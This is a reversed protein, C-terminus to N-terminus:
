RGALWWSRSLPSHLFGPFRFRRLIEVLFQAGFVTKVVPLGLWVPENAASHFPRNHDHEIGINRLHESGWVRDVGDQPCKDLCHRQGHFGLLHLCVRFLFSLHESRHRVHRENPMPIILAIVLLKWSNRTWRAEHRCKALVEPLRSGVDEHLVVRITTAYIELHSGQHEPRELHRSRKLLLTLKGRPEGRGLWSKGERRGRGSCARRKKASLRAFREDTPTGCCPVIMSVPKGAVACHRKTTM